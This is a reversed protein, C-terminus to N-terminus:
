ILTLIVFYLFTIFIKNVFIESISYIFPDKGDARPPFEYTKKKSEEKNQNMNESSQNMFKKDNKIQDEKAFIDQFNRKSPVKQKYLNKQKESENKLYELAKEM